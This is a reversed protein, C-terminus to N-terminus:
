DSTAAIPLRARPLRHRGRRQDPVLGLLIGMRRSVRESAVAKINMAKPALAAVGCAAAGAVAALGATAALGTALAAVAGAALGAVAAAVAALGAVAAAGAAFGAAAAAGAAVVVAAAGAALGAPEDARQWSAFPLNTAQAFFGAAVRQRSALPLNM